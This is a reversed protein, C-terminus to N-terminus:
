EPGGNRHLIIRIASQTWCRGRCTIGFRDLPCAVARLSKGQAIDEPIRAIAAQQEVEEALRGSDAPDPKWGYLRRNLASYGMVTSQSRLCASNGPLVAAPCRTVSTASWGPQGCARKRM